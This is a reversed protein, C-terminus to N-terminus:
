HLNMVSSSILKAFIPALVHRSARSLHIADLYFVDESRLPCNQQGCLAPVIPIFRVTRPLLDALISQEALVERGAHYLVARQGEHLGCLLCTLVDSSAEPSPGVVATQIGHTALAAATEKM